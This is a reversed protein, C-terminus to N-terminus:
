ARRTFWLSRLGVPWSRLRARSGCLLACGLWTDGAAIGACRSADLGYECTVVEGDAMISDVYFLEQARFMNCPSTGVAFARM